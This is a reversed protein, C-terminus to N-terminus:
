EAKRIQVIVKDQVKFLGQKVGRSLAEEEGFGDLTFKNEDVGDLKDDDSWNYIKDTYSVGQEAMWRAGAKFFEELADYFDDIKSSPRLKRSLESIGDEDNEMVEWVFDQAAKELDVNSPIEELNGKIGETRGLEYFKIATLRLPYEIDAHFLDTHKKIEKELDVEPKKADQEFITRGEVWVETHKPEEEVLTWDRELFEFYDGDDLYYCHNELTIEPATIRIQPNNKNVLTKM